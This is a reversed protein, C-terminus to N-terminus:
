RHWDQPDDHHVHNEDDYGGHWAKQDDYYETHHYGQSDVVEVQDYHSHSKFVCGGSTAMVIALIAGAATNRWHLKM